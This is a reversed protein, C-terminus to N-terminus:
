ASARCRGSAAAARRPSVHRPRATVAAGALLALALLLPPAPEALTAEFPRDLRYGPPLRLLEPLASVAFTQNLTKSQTASSTMDASLFLDFPMGVTLDLPSSLTDVASNGFIRIGPHGSYDVCLKRGSGCSGSDVYQDDEVFDVAVEFVGSVADSLGPDLKEVVLGEWTVRAIARAYASGSSGARAFTVADLSALTSSAEAYADSFAFRNSYLDPPIPSVASAPAPGIDVHNHETFVNVQTIARAEFLDASATGTVIACLAALLTACTRASTPTPSM